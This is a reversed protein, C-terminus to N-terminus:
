SNRTAGYHNRTAGSQKTHVGLQKTRGRITEHPGGNNRTAEPGKINRTPGKINRTSKKDGSNWVLIHVGRTEHPNPSGSGLQKTHRATQRWVRWVIVFPDLTLMFQRPTYPAHTQSTMRLPPRSLMGFILELHNWLGGLRRTPVLRCASDGM